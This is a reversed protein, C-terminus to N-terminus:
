IKKINLRKLVDDSEYKRMNYLFVEFDLTCEKILQEAINRPIMNEEIAFVSHRKLIKKKAINLAKLILLYEEQKKGVPPTNTRMLEQCIPQM